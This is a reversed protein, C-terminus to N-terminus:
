GEAKLRFRNKEEIEKIKVLAEWTTYACNAKNRSGYTKAVLNEIGAANAIDRVAGGAIVGMGEKAPKLVVKTSKFEHDISFPITKGKLSIKVMNKKAIRVGKQIATRVDRAKGLGLGVKGKGDGVVMLATFGIRNGGQTKKSTRRIDVVSQLMRDKKDQNNNRNNAM